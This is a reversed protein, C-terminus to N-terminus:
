QKTLKKQSFLLKVLLAVGLIAAIYITSVGQSLAHPSDLGGCSSVRWGIISHFFHGFIMICMNVTTSTLSHLHPPTYVSSHNLLLIQYSCCIGTIIFVISLLSTPILEMSLLSFVISMIFGASIALPLSNKTRDSVFSIIPSGVCMGLFILSCLTAAESRSINYVKVLFANGWADPFGELSGVLLGAGLALCIIKPNKIISKFDRFINQSTAQKQQPLLIFSLTALIVGLILIAVLTHVHGLTVTMTNLSPGGYIAGLLGFTVTVGLYSSFKKPFNGHLINFVGIVAGSSGVGALFRGIIALTWSDALLSLPSLATILICLPMLTKLGKKVAIFCLPLHAIAYGFYYVGSFQGFGEASVHFREVVFPLFINPFVRVLYQYAYFISLILWASLLRKKGPQTKSAIM